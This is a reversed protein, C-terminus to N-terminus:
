QAAKGLNNLSELAEEMDALTLAADNLDVGQAQANLQTRLNMMKQILGRAAQQDQFKAANLALSAQRLMQDAEANANQQSLKRDFRQESHIERAVGLRQDQRRRKDAEIQNLTGGVGRTLMNLITGIVAGPSDWINPDKDLGLARLRNQFEAEFNDAPPKSLAAALQNKLQTTSAQDSGEQEVKADDLAKDAENPLSPNPGLAPNRRSKGTPGPAGAQIAQGEDRVINEILREANQFAMDTGPFALERGETTPPRTRISALMRNLEVPPADPNIYPAYEPGLRPLLARLEDRSAKASGSLGEPTALTSPLGLSPKAPTPPAGLEGGLFQHRSPANQDNPVPAPEQQQPLELQPAYLVGRPGVPIRLSETLLRPDFNNGGGSRDPAPTIEGRPNTGMMPSPVETPQNYRQIEAQAARDLRDLTQEAQNLAQSNGTNLAQDQMGPIARLTREYLNDILKLKEINPM